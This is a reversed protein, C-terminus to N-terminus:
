ATFRSIDEDGMKGRRELYDPKKKTKVAKADQFKLLSIPVIQTGDSKNYRV